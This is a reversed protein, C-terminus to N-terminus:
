TLSMHQTKSGTLVTRSMTIDYFTYSNFISYLNFKPGKDGRFNDSTLSHYRMFILRFINDFGHIVTEAKKM